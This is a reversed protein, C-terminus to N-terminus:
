FWLNKIAVICLVDHILPKNEKLRTNVAEKAGELLIQDVKERQKADKSKNRLSLYAPSDLYMQYLQKYDSCAFAVTTYWSYVCNFGAKKFM